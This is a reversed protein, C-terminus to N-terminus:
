PQFWCAVAFASARTQLTVISGAIGSDATSRELNFWRSMRRRGTRMFRSLGLRQGAGDRAGATGPTATCPLAQRKGVARRGALPRGDFYSGAPPRAHLNERCNDLVATTVDPENPIRLSNDPSREWPDTRKRLHGSRPARQQQRPPFRNGRGSPRNVVPRTVPQRRASALSGCHRRDHPCAAM